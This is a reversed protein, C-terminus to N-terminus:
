ADFNVAILVSDGAVDDKALMAAEVVWTLVNHLAGIIGEVSQYCALNVELLYHTAAKSTGKTGNADHRNNRSVLGCHAKALRNSVQEQLVKSLFVWGLKTGTISNTNVVADALTLFLAYLDELAKNNRYLMALTKITGEGNALHSYSVNTYLAIVWQV